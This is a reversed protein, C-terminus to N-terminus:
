HVYMCLFCNLFKSRFECVTMLHIFSVDFSGCMKRSPQFIKWFDKGSEENSPVGIAHDSAVTKCVFDKCLCWNKVSYRVFTCLYKKKLRTGNLYEDSIAFLM